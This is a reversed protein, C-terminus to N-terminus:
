QPTFTSGMGEPYSYGVGSGYMSNDEMKVDNNGSDESKVNNSM